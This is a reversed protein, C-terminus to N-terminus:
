HQPHPGVTNLPQRAIVFLPQFFGRGGYLFLRVLFTGRLDVCRLGRADNPSEAPQKRNARHVSLLSAARVKSTGTARM